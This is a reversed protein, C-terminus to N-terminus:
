EPLRVPGPKNQYDWYVIVRGWDLAKGSRPKFKWQRISEVGLVVVSLDNVSDARFMEREFTLALADGTGHSNDLRTERNCLRDNGAGGTLRNAASNGTLTCGILTM